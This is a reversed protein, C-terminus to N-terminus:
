ILDYDRGPYDTASAVEFRVRDSVGADQARRRATEVSGAHYDYGVFSSAPFARAMLVTSAGHGCGIDAVRAGARLKEEVGELAPIWSSVLHAKYSSRFFAEVGSFLRPHREHWGLAGRGRFAAELKDQDLWATAITDYAPPLFAPGEPDALCLSQELSLFYRDDFPDHSVYGGVAQNRLWEEVLRPHTRTAVALESATPRGLRALARYLGLRHGLSVLVGSFAAAMDGVARNLFAELAASRAGTPVGTRTDSM